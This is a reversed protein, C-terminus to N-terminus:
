TAISRHWSLKAWGSFCRKNTLGRHYVVRDDNSWAPLEWVVGDYRMLMMCAM